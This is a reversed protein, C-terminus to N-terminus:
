RRVRRRRYRPLKLPYIYRSVRKKQVPMVSPMASANYIEAAGFFSMGVAAASLVSYCLFMFGFFSVITSDYTKALLTIYIAFVQVYIFHVLRAAVGIFYSTPSGDEALDKFIASSPFALIIALAGVSFGLMAPIISIADSAWKSNHAWLPFCTLTIFAALLLFPSTLVAEIGGYVVWYRSLSRGVGRFAKSFVSQHWANSL